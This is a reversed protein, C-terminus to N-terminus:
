VPGLANIAAKKQGPVHWETELSSLHEATDLPRLTSMNKIPNPILRLLLLLFDGILCFLAPQGKSWSGLIRPPIRFHALFHNTSTITSLASLNTGTTLRSLIM